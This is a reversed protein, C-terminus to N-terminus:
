GFLLRAATVVVPAAAVLVAFVVFGMPPKLRSVRWVVVMLVLSALGIACATLLMIAAFAPALQSEPHSRVYFHVAILILDTIFVSTVSATWAITIADVQVEDSPDTSTPRRPRRDRQPSSKKPMTRLCSEELVFQILEL